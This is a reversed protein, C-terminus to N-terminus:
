VCRAIAPCLVSASFNVDEGIGVAARATIPEPSENGCVVSAMLDDAACDLKTLIRAPELAADMKALVREPEAPQTGTGAPHRACCVRATGALDPIGDTREVAIM